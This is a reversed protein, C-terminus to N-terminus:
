KIVIFSLNYYLLTLIANNIIYILVDRLVCAVPVRCQEKGCRARGIYSQAAEVRKAHAIPKPLQPPLSFSLLWFVFVSTPVRKVHFDIGNGNTTESATGRPTQGDKWFGSVTGLFFYFVGMPGEILRGSVVVM